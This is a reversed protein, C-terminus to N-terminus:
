LVKEKVSLKVCPCPEQFGFCDHDHCFYQILLAADQHRHLQEGAFEQFSGKHSGDLTMVGQLSAVGASKVLNKFIEDLIAVDAAARHSM